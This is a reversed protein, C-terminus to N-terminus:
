IEFVKYQGDSLTLVELDEGYNKLSQYVTDWDVSENNKWHPIFKIPLLGFGEGLRGNKGVAFYRCLIDAGASSGMVTKNQLMEKWGSENNLSEIILDVYGGLFYVIQCDGAKQILEGEEPIILEFNSIFKSFFNKTDETKQEWLEKPNAFLCLLIKLKQNQLDKVLETCFSEGGDEAKYIKGGILIIKM